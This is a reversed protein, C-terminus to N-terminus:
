SGISAKPDLEPALVADLTGHQRDSTEARLKLRSLDRRLDDRDTDVAVAVSLFVEAEFWRGLQEALRAMEAADRSPQNRRYLKEYRAQLKETAARKRRLLAARDAQGDKLALEILRDLAQFDAPDAATLRELARQESDIDERQRAFWAALKQVEAPTSETAPLHKLAERATSVRATAMAWSLKARWVATDDPRRRLCQDLLRAAEDHSGARIALNARGLWVRDDEPALMAAQDLLARIADVPRTTRGIEIYLRVLNIAEESGGEGMEDLRQWRAEILREAEEIRGQQHYVPGLVIGDVQPFKLMEQILQEADAFCGRDVLLEIRGVIARPGFESSPPIRDWARAAADARGRQKECLGLLYLLQDSDPRLRLLDGLKRAAIGFRDNAVEEEIEALSRRYRRVEWWKWGVGFLGAAVVALLAVLRWRRAVESM